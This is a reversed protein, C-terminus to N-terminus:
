FVEKQSGCRSEYIVDDFTNVLISTQSDFTDHVVIPTSRAPFTSVAHPNTPYFRDQSTYIDSPTSLLDRGMERVDRESHSFRSVVRRRRRTARMTPPIGIVEGVAFASGNSM